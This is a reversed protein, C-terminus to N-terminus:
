LDRVKTHAVRVYGVPSVLARDQPLGECKLAYSRPPKNEVRLRGGGSLHMPAELGRAEILRLAMSCEASTTTYAGTVLAQVLQDDRPVCSM